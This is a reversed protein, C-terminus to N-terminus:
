VLRSVLLANCSCLVASYVWRFDIGCETLKHAISAHKRLDAAVLHYDGTHIEIGDSESDLTPGASVGLREALAVHHRILAGKRRVVKEFDLEV